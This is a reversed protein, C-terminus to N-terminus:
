SQNKIGRHITLPQLCLTSMSNEFIILTLQRVYQIRTDPYVLNLYDLVEVAFKFLLMMM